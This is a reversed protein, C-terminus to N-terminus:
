STAPFLFRVRNWRAIQCGDRRNFRASVREGRFTGRVVGEQPGGYLQACVADRPVPAFPRRLGALRACARGARPLTGGAPDCRLTWRKAPGDPGKPWVTISLQARDAPAAGAAAAAAFAIALLLRM